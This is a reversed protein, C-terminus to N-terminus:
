SEPKSLFYELDHVWQSHKDYIDEETLVIYNEHFQAGASIKTFTLHDLLLMTPKIEIIVNYKPLYFDPYYYKRLNNYTYPVRFCKTEASIINISMKFCISIFEKEYSSRYYLGHLYGHEHNKSGSHTVKVPPDDQQYLHILSESIKKRTEYTHKINNNKIKSKIINEQHEASRPKKSDRQSESIKKKIHEVQSINDVGYKEYVTKRKRKEKDIQNTNDVRKQITEASQIRGVNINKRLTKLPEYKFSCDISCTKNYGVSINRFKHKINGCVPCINNNDPTSLFKDFYEKSSLEHYSIHKALARANAFQKHCIKCETHINM